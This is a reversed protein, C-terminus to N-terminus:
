QRASEDKSGTSGNGTEFLKEQKTKKRKKLADWRSKFEVELLSQYNSVSSDKREIHKMDLLQKM